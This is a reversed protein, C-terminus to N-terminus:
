GWWPTDPFLMPGLLPHRKWAQVPGVPSNAAGVGTLPPGETHIWWKTMEIKLDWWRSSLHPLPRRLGWMGWVHWPNHQLNFQTQRFSRHQFRLGRVESCSRIQLYSQQLHLQNLHPWAITPHAKLGARSTDEYFSPLSVLVFHRDSLSCINSHHM